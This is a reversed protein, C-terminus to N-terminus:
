SRSRGHLPNKFPAASARRSLPSPARQGSRAADTDCVVVIQAHPHELYGLCQLNAIRGSGVFGIGIRHGAM